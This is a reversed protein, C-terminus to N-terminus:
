KGEQSSLVPSSEVIRALPYTEGGANSAPEQIGKRACAWAIFSDVSRMVKERDAPTLREIPRDDPLVAARKPPRQNIM